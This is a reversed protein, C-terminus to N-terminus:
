KKFLEPHSYRFLWLRDALTSRPNSRRYEDFWQRHNAILRKTQERHTAADFPNLGVPLGYEKELQTLDYRGTGYFYGEDEWKQRLASVDVPLDGPQAVHEEGLLAPPVDKLVFPSRHLHMENKLAARTQVEQVVADHLTKLFNLKTAYAQTVNGWGQGVLICSRLTHLENHFALLRRDDLYAPPLLWIHM